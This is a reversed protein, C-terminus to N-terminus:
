LVSALVIVYIVVFVGFGIWAWKVRNKKYDDNILYAILVGILGILFGLAFGGLHFGTSHDGQELFRALKKNNITGDDNISKRLKRQALKFGIKDLFNLHRGSLNEFEKISINSLDSLSIEKGTSGVPIYVDSAKKAKFSFSSFAFSSAAISFLLFLSLLKKM